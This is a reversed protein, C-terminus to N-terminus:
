DAIRVPDGLGVRGSKLVDAYVGACPLRGFDGLDVLNHQAITRLLEPAAALDGHALTLL